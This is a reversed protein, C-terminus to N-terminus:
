TLTDNPGVDKWVIPSLRWATANVLQAGGTARVELGGGGDVAACPLPVTWARRGGMFFVEVFAHDTWAALEIIGGDSEKLLQNAANTPM